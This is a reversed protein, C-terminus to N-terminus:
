TSECPQANSVADHGTFIQEVVIIFIVLNLLVTLCCMVAEVKM